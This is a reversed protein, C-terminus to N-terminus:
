CEIHGFHGPCEIYSGNCIKCKLNRDAPGQRPDMLGQMKPNGAEYLEPYEIPPNTVSMRRIENPSLIGFQVRSVNRYPAVSEAIQTNIHAM